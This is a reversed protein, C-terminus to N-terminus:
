LNFHERIKRVNGHYDDATIDGRDYMVALAALVEAAQEESHIEMSIDVKGDARRIETCDLPPPASVETLVIDGDQNVTYFRPPKAAARKDRDTDRLGAALLLSGCVLSFFFAFALTGKEVNDWFGISIMLIFAFACM